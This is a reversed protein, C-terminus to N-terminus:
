EWGSFYLQQYSGEDSSYFLNQHRSIFKVKPFLNNRVVNRLTINFGLQGHIMISAMEQNIDVNTMELATAQKGITSIARPIHM